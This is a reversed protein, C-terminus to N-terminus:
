LNESSFYIANEDKYMKKTDSNPMHFINLEREKSTRDNKKQIKEVYKQIKRQSELNKKTPSVKISFPSPNSTKCPGVRKKEFDKIRKKLKAIELSLKKIEEQHRIDKAKDKEILNGIIKKLCEIEEKLPSKKAEKSREIRIKRIEKLEQNKKKVLEKEEKKLEQNKEELGRKIM